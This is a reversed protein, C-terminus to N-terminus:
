GQTIREELHALHPDLRCPEPRCAAREPFSEAQAYKRLTGRALGTARAVALLTEGAKSRRRVDKYAALRRGRSDRSVAIEAESRRYARLRQGPRRGDGIALSPLCRLRGHVRALWREM